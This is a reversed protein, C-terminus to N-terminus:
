FTQEQGKGTDSCLAYCGKRALGPKALGVSGLTAKPHQTGSLPRVLAQCGAQKRTESGKVPQSARSWTVYPLM